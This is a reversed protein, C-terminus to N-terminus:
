LMKYYKNDFLIGQKKLQEKDQKCQRQAANNGYKRSALVSVDKPINQEKEGYKRAALISTKNNRYLLFKILSM